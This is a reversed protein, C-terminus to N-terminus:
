GAHPDLLEAVTRLDAAALATWNGPNRASGPHDCVTTAGVTRQWGAPAAAVLREAVTEAGPGAGVTRLAGALQSVEAKVDGLMAALLLMARAQGVADGGRAAVAVLEAWSIGPGDVPGEAVALRIPGADGGPLLLFEVSDAEGGDGDYEDGDDIRQEEVNRFVVALAADGGLPVPFVPWGAPDTLRLYAGRILGLPAGFLAALEGDLEAELFPGLYAAWFGPRDLMASADFALGHRDYGTLKM